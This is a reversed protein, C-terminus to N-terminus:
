GSQQVLHPLADAVKVVAYTRLIRVDLHIRAYMKKWSRRRGPSIPPVSTSAKRDQSALSRLTAADVCRWASDANNNRYWLHQPQVQWPHFRDATRPALRAQRHHQRDIFHRANQRQHLTLVPQECSEQVARSHADGFAQLTFSTSKSCRVMTIRAPFPPLSRETM